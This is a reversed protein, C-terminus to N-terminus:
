ALYPQAFSTLFDVLGDRLVLEEFLEIARTFDMEEFAEEGIEIRISAFEEAFISQLLERDIIRGDDLQAGHKHWQWLQTRSIEATAADEMLHDIPVCGNGALWAALYRVGVSANQRIGAETIDGHPVRLLDEASVVVDERLVDLHNPEGQLFEDFEAMAISVLAPHAVWTGDHGDNAERRKDARVKELAAANAAEDHKIPIQAAMGGM